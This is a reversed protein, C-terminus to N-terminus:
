NIKEGYIIGRRLAKKYDDGNANIIMYHGNVVTQFGYEQLQKRIKEEHNWAHYACLYVQQIKSKFCDAGGKLMDLEAGEIDAKVVSVEKDRFFDDLAVKDETTVSGVYKRIIEVKDKWPEFTKKLPIMWEELCEFLYVKKANDIWELSFAAEAAGLEAIICGEKPKKWDESVYCHPSRVDQESLRGRCEKLFQEDSFNKRGYLRKGNIYTYPYNDEDRCIEIDMKEYESHYDYPYTSLGNKKIWKAIDRKEEESSKECDCILARCFADSKYKRIMDIVGTARFMQKLSEPAHNWAMRVFNMM